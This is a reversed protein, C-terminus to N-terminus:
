CSSAAAPRSRRRSGISRLCSATKGASIGAAISLRLAAEEVVLRADTIKWSSPRTSTPSSSALSSASSPLGTPAFGTSPTGCRAGARGLVEREARGAAAEARPAPRGAPSTPMSCDTLWSPSSSGPQGDESRSRRGSAMTSDRTTRRLPRPRPYLPFMPRVCGLLCRRREREAHLRRGRTGSFAM